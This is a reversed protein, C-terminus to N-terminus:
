NRLRYRLCPKAALLLNSSRARAVTRGEWSLLPVSHRFGSDPPLVRRRSVMPRSEELISIGLLIARGFESGVAAVRRCEDALRIQM